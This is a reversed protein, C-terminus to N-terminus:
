PNCSDTYSHCAANVPRQSVWAKARTITLEAIQQLVKIPYNAASIRPHASHCVHSSKFDRRTMQCRSADIHLMAFDGTNVPM